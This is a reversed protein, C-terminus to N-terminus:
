WVFALLGYNEWVGVKVQFRCRNWGSVLFAKPQRLGPQQSLNHFSRQTVKWAVTQSENNSCRVNNVWSSCSPTQQPPKVKMTKTKIGGVRSNHHGPSFIGWNRCSCFFPLFLWLAIVIHCLMSTYTFTWCRNQWISNRYDLEAGHLSWHWLRSDGHVSGFFFLRCGVRYGTISKLRRSFRYSTSSRGWWSGQQTSCRRLLPHSACLRCPLRSTWCQAWCCSLSCTGSFSCAAGAATEWCRGPVTQTCSGCHAWCAARPSWRPTTSTLCPPTPIPLSTSNQRCFRPWSPWLSVTSCCLSLHMSTSWLTSAPWNRPSQLSLSPSPNHLKVPSASADYVDEKVQSSLLRGVWSPLWFLPTSLHCRRCRWATAWVLLQQLYCFCPRLTSALIWAAPRPGRSWFM